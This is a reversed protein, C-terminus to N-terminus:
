CITIPKVILYLRLILILLEVYFRPIQFCNM